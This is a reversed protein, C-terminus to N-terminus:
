KIFLKKRHWKLYKKDVNNKIIKSYNPNEIWDQLKLIFKSSLKKSYLINGEDQFSILGGDFLKDFLPSLLIGNKFDLKENQNSNRWPKVHSAFLLKPNKILTIPCEMKYKKILEERFWGQGIRTKTLTNRELTPYKDFKSIDKETNKLWDNSIKSDPAIFLQKKNIIKKQSAKMEDFTFYKRIFKLFKTNLNNSNPLFFNDKKFSKLSKKNNTSIKWLTLGGQPCGRLFAYVTSPAWTRFYDKKFVYYDDKIQWIQRDKLDKLIKKNTAENQWKLHFRENVKYNMISTYSEKLILFGVKNILFRAKAYINGGMKRKISLVFVTKELFNILNQKSNYDM